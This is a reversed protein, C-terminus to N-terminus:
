LLYIKKCCTFQEHTIIVEDNGFGQAHSLALASFCSVSRHTKRSTFPFRAGNAYFAPLSVAAEITACRHCPGASGQPPCSGQLLICAQAEDGCLQKQSGWGKRVSLLCVFSCCSTMSVRFQENFGERRKSRGWRGRGQGIRKRQSIVIFVRLETDTLYM